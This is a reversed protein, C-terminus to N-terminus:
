NVEVLIKMAVGRGIVIRSDRVLLLLPGSDNHVVKVLVGPTIGMEALRLTLGRGAVIRHVIGGEDPSLMSLPKIRKMM